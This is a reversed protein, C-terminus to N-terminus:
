TAASLWGNKEAATSVDAYSYGTAATSVSQILWRRRPVPVAAVTSVDVLRDASQSVVRTTVFM